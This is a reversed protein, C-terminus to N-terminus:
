RLGGDLLESLAVVLAAPPRWGFVGCPQGDVLPTDPGGMGRVFLYLVGGLQREPQYGPQRWRLMRHVAVAYLLAQLPYHAQAMAAAMRAPTYDGLRLETGEVGGLWNTKYDVVLYRPDGGTRFRLVADISGTLYGRLPQDGLAPHSLLEPYGALPDAGSLHHALLPALDALRIEATTRDGGALPLEFTLEPLRDAVGFDALTRDGTLPGLPTRYTPLLAEALSEATVGPLSARALAAAAAERVAAALDPAQPDVAEFVAHGGTGFEVGSPLHQLPSPRQLDPHAPPGAPGTVAAVAVEDDEKAPEAESGVAPGPELGHAAATLASYSTRRWRLDLARDFRRVDLDSPPGAPLPMSSAARAPDVVEVAVEPGLRLEAVPDAPLPYRREPQRAPEDEGPRVRFLLRHLASCETNAPTAAWWTVVQCQARTLAVYLLRLDEGAEEAQHRVMRDARGSGTVGGVDLVCRADDHLRLVQGDDRGRVFTDWAEPLYVVPFQLGKSRHVTLIQVAQADTELRRTGDSWTDGGAEAIRDRLWQVLASVGLRGATMAAHLSQGLHRLDTLTREGGTTSLLRETLRTDTVVAELLAAVGRTALVRSWWRLQQSLETLGADGAEALRPVSWGLFCTLAAQRTLAQRPQELAVLLALWDAAVPSAFVSESGLMVAPVGATVLVDRIAEGRKNSRVLVAVDAPGLIRTRGDLDLLPPDALLATVDAVLDREIGPRVEGVRPLQDPDAPPPLVRLRV